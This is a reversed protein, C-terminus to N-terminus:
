GQMASVGERWGVDVSVCVQMRAGSGDSQM